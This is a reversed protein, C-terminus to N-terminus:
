RISEIAQNRAEISKLTVKFYSAAAQLTLAVIIGVLIIKITGSVRKM